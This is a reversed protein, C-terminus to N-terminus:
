QLKEWEDKTSIPFLTHNELMDQIRIIEPYKKATFNFLHKKDGVLQIEEFTRVDTIKYFHKNNAFKRYQPFENVKNDM